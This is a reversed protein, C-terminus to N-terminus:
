VFSLNHLSFTNRFTYVQVLNVISRALNSIVDTYGLQKM